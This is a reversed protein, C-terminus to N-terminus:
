RQERLNQQLTQFVSSQQWSGGAPQTAQWGGGGGTGTPAQWAAGGPTMGAQAQWGGAQTPQWTAGTQPAQWAATGQLTYTENFAWDGPVRPYWGRQEMLRLLQTHLDEHDRLQNLFLPKLDPSAEAAFVTEMFSIYKLDKVIDLCIDRDSLM